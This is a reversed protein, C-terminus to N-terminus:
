HKIKLLCKVSVICKERKVVVRRAVAMPSVMEEGVGESELVEGDVVISAAMAPTSAGESSSSASIEEMVDIL